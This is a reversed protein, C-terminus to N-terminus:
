VNGKDLIMNAYEVIMEFQDKVMKAHTNSLDVYEVVLTRPGQKAISIVVPELVRSGDVINSTRFNYVVNSFEPDTIQNVIDTKRVAMVYSRHDVESLFTRGTYREGSKTLTTLFENSINGNHDSGYAIIREADRVIETAREMAYTEAITNIMALSFKVVLGYGFERRVRGEVVGELELGPMKDKFLFERTQGPNVYLCLESLQDANLIETSM